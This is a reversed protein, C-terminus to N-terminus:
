SNWLGINRCRLVQESRPYLAPNVDPITELRLAQELPDLGDSNGLSEFRLWDRQANILDMKLNTVLQEQLNLEILDIRGTSFQIEQLVLVQTQTEVVKM